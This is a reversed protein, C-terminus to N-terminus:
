LALKLGLSKVGRHEDEAEHAANRTAFAEDRIAKAIQPGDYEIGISGAVVNEVFRLDNRGELVAPAVANEIRIALHVAPRHRSDYKSGTVLRVASEQLLEGM